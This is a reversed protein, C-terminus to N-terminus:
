CVGILCQLINSEIIKIESQRAGDRTRRGMKAYSIMEQEYNYVIKQGRDDNKRGQWSNSSSFKMPLFKKTRKEVELSFQDINFLQILLKISKRKDIFHFVNCPLHISFTTMRFSQLPTPLFEFKTFVTQILSSLIIIKDEESEISFKELLKLIIKELQIRISFSLMIKITAPNSHTPQLLSLTLTDPLGTSSVNWNSVTRFKLAITSCVFLM